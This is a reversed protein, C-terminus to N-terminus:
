RCRREDALYCCLDYIMILYHLLFCRVLEPPRAYQATWQRARRSFALRDRRYEAAIDPVLPDDPNPQALLQRISVLLASLHMSPRWSGAPPMKLLDLCIRGGGGQHKSSTASSSASISSTSQGDNASSDINPHYVPTLFRAGPPQIPYQAHIDIQLRFVGGEYPTGDPGSLVAIQNTLM